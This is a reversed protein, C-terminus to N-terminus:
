CAVAGCKSACICGCGSCCGPLGSCASLCSSCESGGGSSECSGSSSCSQGSPCSGCSNGCGDDGCAKGACDAICEFEGLTWKGSYPECTNNVFLEWEYEYEHEIAWGVKLTFRCPGCQYYHECKRTQLGEPQWTPVLSSSGIDLECSDDNIRTIVGGMLTLEIPTPDRDDVLSREAFPEFTGDLEDAFCQPDWNAPDNPDLEGSTGGSSSGGAGSGGSAM